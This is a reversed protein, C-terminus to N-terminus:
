ALKIQKTDQLTVEYLDIQRNDNTTIEGYKFIGKASKLDTETLSVKQIADEDFIKIGKVSNQFVPLLVNEIFSARNYKRKFIQQFTNEM